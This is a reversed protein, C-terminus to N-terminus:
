PHSQRLHRRHLIIGIQKKLDPDAALEELAARARPDRLRQLGRLLISRSTGHRRDRLLVLLDDLHARDVMAALAAALGQRVYQDRETLYQERVVDWTFIASRVALARAIGDRIVPPYPRVLHRVLIPHAQPYAVDINVLDWVSGVEWGVSRLEALLPEEARKYELERRRREEQQRARRARVEPDPPGEPRSALFEGVTMAKRRTM